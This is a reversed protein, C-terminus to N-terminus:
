VCTRSYNLVTYQLVVHLLINCIVLLLLGAADNHKETKM